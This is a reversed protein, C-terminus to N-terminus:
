YIIEMTDHILSHYMIIIETYCNQMLTAKVICSNTANMGNNFFNFIPM